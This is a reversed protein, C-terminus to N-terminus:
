KIIQFVKPPYVQDVKYKNKIESQEKNILKYLEEQSDIMGIKEGDLYVQYISNPLSYSKEQYFSLAVLLGIFITVLTCLVIEKKNNM